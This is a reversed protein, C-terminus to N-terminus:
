ASAVRRVMKRHPIGVEEFPEGVIEFGLKEYFGCAAERSHLTLKGIGSESAERIVEDMLQRGIGRAQISADVAVQRIKWVGDPLDTERILLGGVVQGDLCAIQQQDDAEEAIDLSTYRLGLPDRLIRQRLNMWEPYLPYASDISLIGIEM